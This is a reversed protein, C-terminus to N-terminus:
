SHTVGIIVLHFPNEVSGDGVDAGFTGQLFSGVPGLSREQNKSVAGISPLYFKWMEDPVTEQDMNEQIATRADLFTSNLSELTIFGSREDIDNGSKDRVRKIVRYFYPSPMKQRVPPGAIATARLLSARSASGRTSPEKASGPISPEKASGPISAEKTARSKRRRKPPKESLNSEKEQQENTSPRQKREINLPSLAVRENPPVDAELHNWAMRHIETPREVGLCAIRYAERFAMGRVKTYAHAAKGLHYDEAFGNEWTVLKADGLVSFPATFCEFFFVL